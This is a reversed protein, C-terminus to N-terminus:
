QTYLSLLSAFSEPNGLPKSYGLSRAQITSAASAIPMAWVLLTDVWWARRAQSKALVHRTTHAGCFDLKCNHSNLKAIKGAM